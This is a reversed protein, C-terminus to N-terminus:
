KNLYITGNPHMMLVENVLDNKSSIFLFLIIHIRGM